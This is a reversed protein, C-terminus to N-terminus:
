LKGFSNPLVSYNADRTGSNMRAMSEKGGRQCKAQMSFVGSVTICIELRESLVVSWLIILFSAYSLALVLEQPQDHGGRRDLFATDESVTVRLQRYSGAVAFYQFEERHVRM